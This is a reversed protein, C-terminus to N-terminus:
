FGARTIQLNHVLLSALASTKQYCHTRNPGSLHPDVALGQGRLGEEPSQAIHAQGNGATNETVGLQFVRFHVGRWGPNQLLDRLFHKIRNEYYRFAKSVCM